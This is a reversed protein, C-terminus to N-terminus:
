SQSKIKKFLIEFDSIDLGLMHMKKIVAPLENKLFQSKLQKKIRASANDSVFVGIGRKLYIIKEEQLQAYSRMVTNPNVGIQGALERVSMIKSGEPFNGTLINESIYDAIQLYISKNKDFEM